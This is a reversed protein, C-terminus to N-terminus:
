LRLFSKISKKAETAKVSEKRKEAVRGAKVPVVEDLRQLAPPNRTDIAAVSSVERVVPISQSGPQAPMRARKEVLMPGVPDRLPDIDMEDVSVGIENGRRIRM